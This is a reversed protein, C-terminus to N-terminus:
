QGARIQQIEYSNDKSLLKWNEGYGLALYEKQFSKAMIFKGNKFLRCTYTKENGYNEALIHEKIMNTRISM